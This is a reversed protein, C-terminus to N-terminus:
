ILRTMPLIPLQKSRWTEQLSTAGLPCDSQWVRDRSGPLINATQADQQDGSEAQGAPSQAAQFKTYIQKTEM